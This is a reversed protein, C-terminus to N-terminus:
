SLTRCYYIAGKQIGGKMSRSRIEFFSNSTVESNEEKNKIEVDREIAVLPIFFM